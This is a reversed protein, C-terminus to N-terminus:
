IFGLIYIEKRLYRLIKALRRFRINRQTNLMYISSKKKLIKFSNFVLFDFPNIRIWAFM